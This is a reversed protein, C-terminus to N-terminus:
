PRKLKLVFTTGKGKKNKLVFYNDEVTVEGEYREVIKKVIYLGLGMQGKKGHKIGPEFIKAKIKDPIGSGYDTIRIECFAGKEKIKIDIQETDTHILANRVLNDIVSSLALDVLVTGEGEVNFEVTSAAYDKLVAEVIQRADYPQLAKDSTILHELERMRNILEAIKTIPEYARELLEIDKVDKFLDLYGRIVALDNLIDHRLISNIVKLSENLEGVIASTKRLKEETQKSQTIDINSILVRSLTDEHGPVVSLELNIYMKRGKLTQSLAETKFRTEGEALAILSEKITDYSGEQFIKVVNKVLEEKNEAEYLELTIKNVDNIKLTDFLADFTEFKTKFYSRFNKVGSQRLNHFYPKLASFDLEWLSIPSEEFLNRYRAESERLAEEAQKRETIDHIFSCLMTGKETKISFALQQVSFLRGDLHQMDAELSQGLWPADGTRIFEYLSAKISDAREQSRQEEPILQFQVEWVPQGMVDARKLGTLRELGPNWEIIIGQEDTLVIGDISQEFIYRFKEENKTPVSRNEIEKSRNNLDKILKQNRRERNVVLKIICFLEEFLNKHEGEKELHYDVGQNLAEIVVGEQKNDILIIFPTSDGGRRVKTLINLGTLGSMEHTAVIVDYNHNKLQELTDYSSFITKIILNESKKELYVKLLDLFVKDEDVVLININDQM